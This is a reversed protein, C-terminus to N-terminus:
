PRLYAFENFIFKKVKKMKVSLYTNVIFKIEVKKFEPYTYPLALEM